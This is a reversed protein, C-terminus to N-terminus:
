NSKDSIDLFFNIGTYKVGSKNGPMNRLCTVGYFLQLGVEGLNATPKITTETFFSQEVTKYLGTYRCFCKCVFLQRFFCPLIMANPTFYMPM